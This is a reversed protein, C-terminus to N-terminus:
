RLISWVDVSILQPPSIARNLSYNQLVAEKVFGINRLKSRITRGAVESVRVQVRHANTLKITYDVLDRLVQEDHLGSRKTFCPHMTVRVDPVFEDLFIYGSDFGIITAQGRILWEYFDECKDFGMLDFWKPANTKIDLWTQIANDVIGIM